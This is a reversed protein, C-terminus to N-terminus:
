EKDRELLRIRGQARYLAIALVERLAGRVRPWAPATSGATDVQPFYRQFVRGARFVHYADSVLLIRGFGHQEALFRANEETSTSADEIITAEAPLGLVAAYAAAARAESPPNAGVGGTFAIRPALGQEWLAVALATRAQLAPSPVGGPDVRCGAVVIADWRGESPRRHGSIDLALAGLGWPGLCLAVLLAAGRRLSAHSSM